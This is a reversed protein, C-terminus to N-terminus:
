HGVLDAWCSFDAGESQQVGPRLQNHVDRQGTGTTQHVNGWLYLLSASALFGVIRQRKGPCRVLQLHHRSTGGITEGERAAAGHLGRRARWPISRQDGSAQPEHGPHEHLAQRHNPETQAGTTCNLIQDM